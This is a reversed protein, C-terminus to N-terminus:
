FGMSDTSSGLSAKITESFRFPANVEVVHAGQEGTQRHIGARVSPAIKRLGGDFSQLGVVL